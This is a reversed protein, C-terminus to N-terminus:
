AVVKNNKNYGTFGEKALQAKQKGAISGKPQTGHIILAFSKDSGYAHSDDHDIEFGLDKAEQESYVVQAFKLNYESILNDNKGGKSATLKMNSPIKDINDIWYKLSKTYAYFLMDPNQKAIELWSIFYNPSFFDGSVHLRIVKANIPLSNQILNVMGEKDLKRLLEFNYWRQKQTNKYVVEQSASFCRFTTNPGDEIKGTAINAKSLCNHAFPCAYGAPLSVTFIRKGLKANGQSFKLKEM